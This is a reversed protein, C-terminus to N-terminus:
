PWPRTSAPARAQRDRAPRSRSSPSDGPSQPPAQMGPAAAMWGAPPALPPIRQLLQGGSVVTMSGVAYGLDSWGIMVRFDRRPNRLRLHYASGSIPIMATFEAYLAAFMPLGAVM